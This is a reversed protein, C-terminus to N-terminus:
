FSIPRVFHDADGLDGQEHLELLQGGSPRLRPRVAPSDARRVRRPDPSPSVHPALQHRRVDAVAVIRALLLISEGRMRSLRVRGVARSAVQHRAAPGCDAHAPDGLMAVGQEPHKCVAAHEDDSLRGPKKLIADPIGIKGVDHLLSSLEVIRWEHPTLGLQRALMVGIAAVRESHRHTYGDKADIMAAIARVVDVSLAEVDELLRARHLAIGAQNGIAALLELEGENFEHASQSDVHQCGPDVGVHADARVDGISDAAARRQRRWTASIPSRTM